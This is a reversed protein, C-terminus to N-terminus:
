RCGVDLHRGSRDQAIWERRLRATAAQLRVFFSLILYRAEEELGEGSTESIAEDLAADDVIGRRGKPVLDEQRRYWEEERL